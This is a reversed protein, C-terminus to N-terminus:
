SRLTDEIEIEEFDEFYTLLRFLENTNIIIENEETSNDFSCLPIGDIFITKSQEDSLLDNIIEIPDNYFDESSYYYGNFKNEKKM